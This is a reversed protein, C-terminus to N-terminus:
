YGLSRILLLCGGGGVLVAAACGIGAGLAFGREANVIVILIFAILVIVPGAAHSTAALALLAAPLVLIGALVGAAIRWGSNPPRPPPQGLQPTRDDSM